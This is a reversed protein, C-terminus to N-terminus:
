PTPHYKAEGRLPTSSRLAVTLRGDTNRGVLNKILILPMRAGSNEAVVGRESHPNVTAAVGGDDRMAFVEQVELEDMSRRNADGIMLEGCAACGRVPADYVLDNVLVSDMEGVDFASEQHGERDLGSSGWFM